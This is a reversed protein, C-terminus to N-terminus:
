MVAHLQTLHCLRGDSVFFLHCLLVSSSLLLLPILCCLLFMLGCSNFCCCCQSSVFCVSPSWYGSKLVSVGVHPLPIIFFVFEDWM